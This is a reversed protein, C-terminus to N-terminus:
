GADTLNFQYSPPRKGGRGLASGSSTISFVFPTINTPSRPMRILSVYPWFGRSYGFESMASAASTGCVYARILQLWSTLQALAQMPCAFALEGNSYLACSVSVM